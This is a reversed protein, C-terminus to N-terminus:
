GDRSFFLVLGLGVCERFGGGMEVRCLVIFGLSFVIGVGGALVWFSYSFYVM